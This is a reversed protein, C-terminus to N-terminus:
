EDTAILEIVGELFNGLILMPKSLYKIVHLFIFFRTQHKVQVVSVRTQM